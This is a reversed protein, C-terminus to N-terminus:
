PLATHAVQEIEKMAPREVFVALGMDDEPWLSGGPRTDWGLPFTVEIDTWDGRRSLGLEGLSGLYQYERIVRTYEVLQLQGEKIGKTALGNKYDVAVVRFSDPAALNELLVLRFRGRAEIGPVRSADLWYLAVFPDGENGDLFADIHGRYNPVANAGAERYLSNFFATPASGEALYYQSRAITSPTALSDSGGWRLHVQLGVYGRAPLDDLHWFEEVAEDAVDCNPCYTATLLELLVRRSQDAPELDFAVSVPEDGVEVTKITHPGDAAGLLSVSVTHEGPSVCDLTAPTTKGTPVGDLTIEAGAMTSTVEIAGEAQLSFAVEQVHGPAVTVTQVPGPSVETCDKTVEIAHEGPPLIWSYSARDTSEVATNGDITITAGVFGGATQATLELVLTGKTPDAIEDRCGPLVALGLAAALGIGSTARQLSRSLRPFGDSPRSCNM